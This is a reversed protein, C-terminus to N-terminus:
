FICIALLEDWIDWYWDGPITSIWTKLSGLHNQCMHLRPFSLFFHFLLMLAAALWNHLSALSFFFFILLPTDMSSLCFLLQGSFRLLSYKLFCLKLCFWYKSTLCHLYTHLPLLLSVPWVNSILPAISCPSWPYSSRCWPYDTTSM